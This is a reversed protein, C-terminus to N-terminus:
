GCCWRCWRSLQFHSRNETAGGVAQRGTAGTTYICLIYFTYLFYINSVVIQRNTIDEIQCFSLMHYFVWTTMTTSAIRGNCCDLCVSWRMAARPRSSFKRIPVALHLRQQLRLKHSLPAAAAPHPWSITPMTWIWNTAWHPWIPAVPAQNRNCAYWSSRRTWRSMM